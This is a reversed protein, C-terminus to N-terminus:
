EKVRGYSLSQQQSPLHCILSRFYLPAQIAVRNLHFVHYTILLYGDYTLLFHDDYSLLFSTYMSRCDSRKPSFIYSLDKASLDAIYRLYTNCTVCSNVYIVFDSEVCFFLTLYDQDIYYFIPGKWTIFSPGKM